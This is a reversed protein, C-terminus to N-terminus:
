SLTSSILLLVYMCTISINMTNQIQTNTTFKTTILPMANWVSSESMGHCSCHLVSVAGNYELAERLSDVDEFEVYCYGTVLFPCVM